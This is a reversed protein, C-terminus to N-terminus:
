LSGIIVMEIHEVSHIHQTTRLPREVSLISLSSQHTDIGLVRHTILSRVNTQADTCSEIRIHLHCVIMAGTFFKGERHCAKVASQFTKNVILIERLLVVLTILSTSFHAQDKSWIMLQFEVPRNVILIDVLITEAIALELRYLFTRDAGVGKIDSVGGGGEHVAILAVHQIRTKGNTIIHLVQEEGGRGTVLEQLVPHHHVM